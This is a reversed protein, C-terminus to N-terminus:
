DTTKTYKIICIFDISTNTGANRFELYSQTETKRYFVRTFDNSAQYFAPETDSNTSSFVKKGVFSLFCFTDINLSALDIHQSGISSNTLNYSQTIVKQYLPKGDIWEGIVQENTSYNEKTSIVDNNIEINNGATLTDQKTDLGDALAKGSVLYSEPEIPNYYNNTVKNMPICKAVSPSDTDTNTFNFVVYTKTVLLSDLDVIQNDLTGTQGKYTVKATPDTPVKDLLFFIASTSTGDIRVKGNSILLDTYPIYMYKCNSGSTPSPLTDGVEVSSLDYYYNQTYESITYYNTIDLSLSQVAQQIATYVASSTILKTYEDESVSTSVEGNLYVSWQGGSYILWKTAGIFIYNLNDFYVIENNGFIIANDPTAQTQIAYSGTNYFGTGLSPMLDPILVINQTLTTVSVGGGGGTASIVNDEISIGSGATLKDQKNEDLDDIQDQLDDIQDQYDALEKILRPTYDDTSYFDIALTRGGTTKFSDYTTTAIGNAKRLIERTDTNIEYITYNGLIDFIAPNEDELIEIASKNSESPLVTFHPLTAGVDYSGYTIDATIEPTFNKGIYASIVNNDIVINEGAILKDQKSDLGENIYNQLQLFSTDIKSDLDEIHKCLWLLQEEYSLAILYSEPIAGYKAYFPLKQFMFM